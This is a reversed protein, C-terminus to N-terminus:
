LVGVIIMEYPLPANFQKTGNQNVLFLVANLNIRPIGLVRFRDGASANQIAQAARTGQVFIMRRQGNAAENDQDTLVRALAIWGDQVQKPDQELQIEFEVYNYKLKKSRISIGSSSAKITVVCQDFYAFAEAATYAQYGAIPIFSGGVDDQNVRSIPHIEFSHDPNTHDPYFKNAGGQTQRTAPHEFWLRWAGTIAVATGSQQAAVIRSVQPKQPPLGANVVEAVFPLGVDHSVGSFHMDGDDGGHGVPNAKTHSHRVDMSAVISTRDAFAQVWARKLRVEFKPDQARLPTTTALLSGALVCSAAVAFTSPM